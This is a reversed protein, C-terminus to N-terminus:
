KGKNQRMEEFWKATKADLNDFLMNNKIPKIEEIKKAVKKAM